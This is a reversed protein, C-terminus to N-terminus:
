AALLTPQEVTERRMPTAQDDRWGRWHPDALGRYVVRPAQGLCIHDDPTGYGADVRAAALVLDDRRELWTLWTSRDSRHMAGLQQRRQQRRQDQQGASQKQWWRKQFWISRLAKAAPHTSTKYTQESSETDASLEKKLRFERRERAHRRAMRATNARGRTYTTPHVGRTTETERAREIAAAAVSGPQWAASDCIGDQYSRVRTLIERESLWAVVRRLTSRVVGAQECWARESISGGRRVLVGVLAHLAATVSRAFQPRRGCQALQQEAATMLGARVVAIESQEAESEEGPRTQRASATRRRRPRERKAEALAPQWYTDRWGDVGLQGARRPSAKEFRKWAASESVGQEADVISVAPAWVWRRWDLEGMERAKSGASNAAAWAARASWGARAAALADGYEAASRDVGSKSQKRPRRARRRPRSSGPQTTAEEVVPAPLEEFSLTGGLVPAELGLRHPSSLLRVTRRPNAPVGHQQGVRACLRRWAPVLEAATPESPPVVFVHRGGPRGSARVLWPLGRTEAWLVLDDAVAEGSEADAGCDAPDVDVALVRGHLRAAVATASGARVAEQAAVLTDVRQPSDNEADILVYPGSFLVRDVSVRQEASWVAPLVPASASTGLSFVSVPTDPALPSADNQPRASGQPRGPM